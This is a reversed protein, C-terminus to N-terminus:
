SNLSRCMTCSLNKSGVPSTTAPKRTQAMVLTPCSPADRSSEGLVRTLVRPGEGTQSCFFFISNIPRWEFYVTCSFWFSAMMLMHMSIIIITCSMGVFSLLYVYLVGTQGHVFFHYGVFDVSLM